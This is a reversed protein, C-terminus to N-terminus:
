NRSPFIGQLAICWNIVLYPQQNSHPQSGGTSGIFGNIPQSDGNGKLYMPSNSFVNGAPPGLSGATSTASFTHVHQPMENKALTHNEEGGTQGLTYNSIGPGQGSSVTVRSQLNPLSFTTQGNGGYTTGLLSFLAQNQAISLVQGNTFAWGKPPYNFAVAMLQGLFPTSM